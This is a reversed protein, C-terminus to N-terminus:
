TKIGSAMMEDVLREMEDKQQYAYRYPRVNVPNTGKKLHIHDEISRQPPLEGPWDFVDENKCLVAPISEHTTPVEDVGYMAAFAMGGELSGCEILFGQDLETWTKMMHKLSVRAKTHSPDGRLVVKKGNQIFTM